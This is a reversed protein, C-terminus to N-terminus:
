QYVNGFSAIPKDSGLRTQNPTTSTEPNTHKPLSDIATDLKTADPRQTETTKISQIKSWKNNLGWPDEKVMDASDLEKASTTNGKEPNWKVDQYVLLGQSTFWKTAENGYRHLFEPIMNDLFRQAESEKGVVTTITYKTTQKWALDV